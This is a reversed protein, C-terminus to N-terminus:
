GCSGGCRRQRVRPPPWGPQVGRLLRRRRRNEDHRDLKARWRDVGAPEGAGVVVTACGEVRVTQRERSRVTVTSKSLRLGALADGALELDYDGAAVPVPANPRLIGGKNPDAKSRVLVRAAPDLGVLALEGPEAPPPPAPLPTPSTHRPPLVMALVGALGALVVVTVAAGILLRIRRKPPRAPIPAPASAVAPAPMATAAAMTGDGDSSPHLLAALVAAVEGATQYRDDPKKAMLKRVVAAVAPPTDPRLQEVPTPEDFLHAALKASMAGAPFPPKGTLLFYFTCGLSYLDARHDVTHSDRAQEPAIYDLSGMLTGHQTLTGSEEGTESRRCLLALGLDLVKVVEGPASLLLNSPKVDRHVLGREHAHQLGLAAQRVVDCALAVPLPGREKVVRSLDAGAVIEMAFFFVGGEESADFAHVVNPHALQAAARIERRFRQVAEDRVLRDKRVVKLAVARGLKWNRAKFVAGM